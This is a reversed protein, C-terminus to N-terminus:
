VGANSLDYIALRISDSLSQHEAGFELLANELSERLSQYHAQPDKQFQEAHGAVEDLTAQQAEDVETEEIVKQLNEVSKKAQDM